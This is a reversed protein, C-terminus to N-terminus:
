SYDCSLDSGLECGVRRRLFGSEFRYPAKGTLHDNKTKQRNKTRLQFATRREKIAGCTALSIKEAQLWKKETPQRDARLVLIGRQRQPLSTGTAFLLAGRADRLAWLKAVLEIIQNEIHNMDHSDSFNARYDKVSGHRFKAFTDEIEESYDVEDGHGRVTVSLGRILVCYKVLRFDAKIRKTDAALSKFAKSEVYQNLYQKFERFGSSQTKIQELDATLQKIADCYIAIADVLWANKQLMYYLKKVQELHRRMEQMEGAFRDIRDFLSPDELDKMVEHRYAIDGIEVLQRYFFPKLNYDKKGTTVAGVIQDFNLDKFFDPLEAQEAPVDLPM